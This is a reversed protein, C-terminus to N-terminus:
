YVELVYRGGEKLEEMVRGVEVKRGERRGQERVADELVAAVDPVPWTPGCLYFSGEQVLYRERIEDLSERMKDQIYVKEKQDRSFAAGMHTVIGADIYAEWGGGFGGNDHCTETCTERREAGEDLM